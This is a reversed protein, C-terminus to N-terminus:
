YRFYRFFLEFINSLQIKNGKIFEIIDGRYKRVDRQTETEKAKLNKIQEDKEALEHNKVTLRSDYDEKARWKQDECELFFTFFM